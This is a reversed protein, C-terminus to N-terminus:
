RRKYVPRPSDVTGGYRGDCERKVRNSEAQRGSLAYVMVWAISTEEPDSGQDTTEEGRMEGIYCFGDVRDPVGFTEGVGSRPSGDQTVNGEEPVVNIQVHRGGPRDPNQIRVPLRKPFRCLNVLQQLPKPLIQDDGLSLFPPPM